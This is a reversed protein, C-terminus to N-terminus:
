LDIGISSYKEILWFLKSKLLEFKILFVNGCLTASLPASLSKRTSDLSNTSWAASISDTVLPETSDNSITLGPIPYVTPWAAINSLVSVLPPPISTVTLLIIPLAITSTLVVTCVSSSTTKTQSLSFWIDPYIEVDCVNLVLSM